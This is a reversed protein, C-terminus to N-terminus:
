PNLWHFINTYPPFHYTSALSPRVSVVQRRYMKAGGVIGFALRMAIMRSVIGINPFVNVKRCFVTERLHKDLTPVYAPFVPETMLFVIHKIELSWIGVEVDLSEVVISM